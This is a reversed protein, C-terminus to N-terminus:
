RGEGNTSHELLLRRFVSPTRATRMEEFREEGFESVSRAIVKREHSDLRFPPSAPNLRSPHVQVAQYPYDRSFARKDSSPVEVVFDVYMWAANTGAAVNFTLVWDGPSFYGKRGGNCHFPDKVGYRASAEAKAAKSTPGNNNWWGVKWPKRASSAFWERLSPSEDDPATRARPVAAVIRDSRRALDKLDADSIPQPKSYHLLTDIDVTGRPLWVGPKKSVEDALPLRPFTLPAYLQM